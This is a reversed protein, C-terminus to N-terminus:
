LAFSCETNWTVIIDYTNVFPSIGFVPSIVTDIGGIKTIKSSLFEWTVYGPIKTIQSDM